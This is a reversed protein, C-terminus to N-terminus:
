NDSCAYLSAAQMLLVNFQLALCIEWTLPNVCFMLAMAQKLLIQTQWALMCHEREISEQRLAVAVLPQQLSSFRDLVPAERDFMAAERFLLPTVGRTLIENLGAIRQERTLLNPDPLEEPEVAGHAKLEAVVHQHDLAAQLLTERGQRAILQRTATRVRGDLDVRNGYTGLMKLAISLRRAHEGRIGSQKMERRIAAAETIFLTFVPDLQRPAHGGHDQANGTRTQLLLSGGAALSGIGLAATSGLFARRSQM